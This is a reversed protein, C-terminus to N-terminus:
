CGIACPFAIRFPPNRRNVAAVGVAVVFAFEVAVVFSAENGEGVALWGVPTSAPRKTKEGVFENGEVLDVV